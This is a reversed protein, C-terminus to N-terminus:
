FFRAHGVDDMQCLQPVTACVDSNYTGSGIQWNDPYVTFHDNAFAM